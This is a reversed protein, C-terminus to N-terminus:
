YSDLITELECDQTEVSYVKEILIIIHTGVATQLVLSLVSTIFYWKKTQSIM